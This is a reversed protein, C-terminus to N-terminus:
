LYMPTVDLQFRAMIVIIITVVVVCIISNEM